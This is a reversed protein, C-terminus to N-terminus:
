SPEWQVNGSLQDSSAVQFKGILTATTQLESIQRALIDELQKYRANNMTFDPHSNIPVSGADFDKRWKLFISQREIALALLDTDIKKLVYSNSWDDKEHDFLREYAHPHGQYGAIGVLPIGDHIADITYVRDM